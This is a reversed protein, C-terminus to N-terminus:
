KFPNPFNQKGRNFREERLAEELVREKEKGEFGGSDRYLYIRKGTPIYIMQEINRFSVTDFSCQNFYEYDGVVMNDPGRKFPRERPFERLAVKLATYLRSANM